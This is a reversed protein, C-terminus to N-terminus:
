TKRVRAVDRLLKKLAAEDVQELRSFRLCSKGAPVGPFNPKHKALVSAAVYLAVYRKQAALNALGPYDLMGHRVGEKIKPHQKRIVGRVRELIPGLPAEVSRRYAAPTTADRKM